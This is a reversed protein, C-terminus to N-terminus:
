AIARSASDDPRTIVRAPTRGARARRSRSAAAACSRGRAAAWSSASPTTRRRRPRSCARARAARSRRRRRRCRSRRRRSRARCRGRRGAGARPARVLLRRRLRQRQRGAQGADQEVAARGVVRRQGADAAPLFPLQPRQLSFSPSALSDTCAIARPLSPAIQAAVDSPSARKSPCFQSGSPFSRAPRRPAEGRSPLPRSRPRSWCPAAPAAARRPRSRPRDRRQRRDDHGAVHAVDRDISEASDPRHRRSRDGQDLRLLDSGLAFCARVNAASFTVTTRPQNKPARSVTDRRSSSHRCDSLPDRLGRRGGAAASGRGPRRGTCSRAAAPSAAPTSPPPRSPAPTRRAARSGPRAARRRAVVVRRRLLEVAGARDPHDHPHALEGLAPELHQHLPQAARADLAEDGVARAVAHADLAGVIADSPASPRADLRQQARHALVDVLQRPSPM